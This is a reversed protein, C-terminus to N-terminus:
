QLVAHKLANMKEHETLRQLQYQKFGPVQGDSSQQQALRKAQISNASIKQEMEQIFSAM